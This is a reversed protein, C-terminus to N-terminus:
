CSLRPLLLLTGFRRIPSPTDLDVRLLEDAGDHHLVERNVEALMAHRLGLEAPMSAEATLTTNSPSSMPHDKRAWPQEGRALLVLRLHM